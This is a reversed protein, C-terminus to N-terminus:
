YIRGPTLVLVFAIFRCPKLAATPLHGRYTHPMALLDSIFAEYYYCDMPLLICAM